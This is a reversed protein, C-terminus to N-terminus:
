DAECGRLYTELMIRAAEAHAEEKAAGASSINREAEVSTLTEDIEEVVAEGKLRARLAEIFNRTVRTQQSENGSLSIPLGVLVTRAGEKKVLDAAAELQNKGKSDIMSHRLALREDVDTAAVGIYREGYDLCIIM